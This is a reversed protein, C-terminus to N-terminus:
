RKTVADIMHSIKERSIKEYIAKQLFVDRSQGTDALYQDLLALLEKDITFSIKKSTSPTKKPKAQTSKKREPM